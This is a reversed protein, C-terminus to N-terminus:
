LEVNWSLQSIIQQNSHSREIILVDKMHVVDAASFSISFSTSVLVLVQGDAYSM